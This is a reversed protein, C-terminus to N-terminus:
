LSLIVKHAKDIEAQHMKMIEHCEIITKAKAITEEVASALEINKEWWWKNKLNEIKVYLGPDIMRSAALGIVYRLRNIMRAPQTAWWDPDNLNAPSFNPFDYFEPPIGPRAMEKQLERERRVKEWRRRQGESRAKKVKKNLRPRTEKILIEAPVQVKILDAAACLSSKRHVPFDTPALKYWRKISTPRLDTKQAVALILAPDDPNYGLEKAIAEWVERNIGHSLVSQNM